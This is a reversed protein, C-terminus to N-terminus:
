TPIRDILASRISGRDFTRDPEPEALDAPQPRPLELPDAGKFKKGTTAQVQARASGAVDYLLEVLAATLETQDPWPWGLVRALASEQPLRTILVYLRRVGIHDPGWCAEGLDLGYFRQFDADIEDYFREILDLLGYVLGLPGPDAM